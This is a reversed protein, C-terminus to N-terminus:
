YIQRLEALYSSSLFSPLLLSSKVRLSVQEIVCVSDTQILALPSSTANESEPATRWKATVTSGRALFPIFHSPRSMVPPPPCRQTTWTVTAGCCIRVPLFSINLLPLLTSSPSPSSPPLLPLPFNLLFPFSSFILLPLLLCLLNLHFLSVM